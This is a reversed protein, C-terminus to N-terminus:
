TWSPEYGTTIFLERAGTNADTKTQGVRPEGIARARAEIWSLLAAGIGRSRHSPRVDAEARSRYLEAWAALDEGEFVLLMDLDPDFGHREFGVTVDNRAVEVVGDDALECGAILEYIADADAANAPRRTFGEPLPVTLM